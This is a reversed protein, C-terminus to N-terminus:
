TFVCPAGSKPLLGVFEAVAIPRIAGRAHDNGIRPARVSRSFAQADKVLRKEM